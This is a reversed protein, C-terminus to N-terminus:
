VGRRHYLIRAVCNVVEAVVFSAVLFYALGIENAGLHILFISSMSLAAYVYAAVRTAKLGIFKEREDARANADRPALVAVVIHAVVVLVVFSVTALVLAHFVFPNPDPALTFPQGWPFHTAWLLSMLVLTILTIWASKERFSM